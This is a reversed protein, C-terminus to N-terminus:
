YTNAADVAQLLEAKALGPIVQFDERVTAKAMALVATDNYYQGLKSGADTAHHVTVAGAFIEGNEPPWGHAGYDDWAGVMRLLRKVDAPM